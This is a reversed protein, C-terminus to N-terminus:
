DPHLHSNTPLQVRLRGDSSEMWQSDIGRPHVREHILRPSEHLGDTSDSSVEFSIAPCVLVKQDKLEPHAM